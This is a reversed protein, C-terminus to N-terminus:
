EVGLWWPPQLNFPHAFHETYQTMRTILPKFTTEHTKLWRDYEEITDLLKDIADHAAKDNENGEYADDIAIFAAWAELRTYLYGALQYNPKGAPNEPIQNRLREAWETAAAACLKIPLKTQHETPVDPVGYLISEGLFLALQAAPYRIADTDEIADKWISNNRAQKLKYRIDNDLDTKNMIADRPKETM